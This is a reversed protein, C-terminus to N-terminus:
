LLATGRVPKHSTKVFELWFLVNIAGSFSCSKMVEMVYCLGDSSLRLLVLTVRLRMMFTEEGPM